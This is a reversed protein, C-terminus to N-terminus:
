FPIDDSYCPPPPPLRAGPPPVLVVGEYEDIYYGYGHPVGLEIRKHIAGEARIFLSWSCDRRAAAAISAEVRGSGGCAYCVYLCGSEEEVGHDGFGGCSPCDAMEIKNAM